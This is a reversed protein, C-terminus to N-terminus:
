RSGLQEFSLNMVPYQQWDRFDFHWWEHDNVTFGRSEMAKRLLARLWRQRSTGGPYDPYARDSFEDYGSPMEVPQGAKLDYLSLDVACGRNHRSGKAPDAVFNRQAATTAEWFMKTVLWLRYSDHILLGFGQANLARHAALM